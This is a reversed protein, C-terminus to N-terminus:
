FWFIKTQVQLMFYWFLQNLLTVWHDQSWSDFTVNVGTEPPEDHDADVVTVTTNNSPEHQEGDQVMNVTFFILIHDM